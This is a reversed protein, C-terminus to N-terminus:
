FIINCNNIELPQVKILQSNVQNNISVTKWRNKVFVLSQLIQPIYTTSMWGPRHYFHHISSYLQKEQSHLVPFLYPEHSFSTLWQSLKKLYKRKPFANNKFPIIYMNTLGFLSEIIAKLKSSWRVPCCSNFICLDCSELTVVSLATM